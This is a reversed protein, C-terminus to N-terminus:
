ALAMNGPSRSLTWSVQQCSASLVITTLKQDDMTAPALLVITVFGMHTMLVRRMDCDPRLSLARNERNGLPALVGVTRGAM